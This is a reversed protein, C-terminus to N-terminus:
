FLKGASELSTDHDGKRSSSSSASALDRLESPIRGLQLAVKMEFLEGNERREVDKESLTSEISEEMQRYFGANNRYMEFVMGIQGGHELTNVVSAMAGAVVGILVAWSGHWPSGVLTSVVAAIGTLLPGSIALIRSTKSVLKSLRVYEATDKRKLVGVVERMEEELKESWGNREIEGGARESQLPLQVPWWVAPDITTPFKERMGGLLILPYAKDLALVKETAENVDMLTPARIALKTQIQEYLQRYLRSANRQEEALQSPQIKNVVLLMGTAATYLLTSSLKFALVQVGSGGIAALGVMISATLTIANISTLLLNNWNNRQEGVNAHMEARDAVIEAIAYLEAVITAETSSYDQDADRTISSATPNIGRLHEVGRHKYNHTDRLLSLHATRRPPARLTVGVTRACSSTSSSSYSSSSSLYRIAQLTAM